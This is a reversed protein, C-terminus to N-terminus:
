VVREIGKLRKRLLDHVRKILHCALSMEAVSGGRARLNNFVEPRFVQLCPLGDDIRAGVAHELNRGM